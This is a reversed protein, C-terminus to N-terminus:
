HLTLHIAKDESSHDFIDMLDMMRYNDVIDYLKETEQDGLWAEISTIEQDKSSVLYRIVDNIMNDDQDLVIVCNHNLHDIQISKAPILHDEAHNFVVMM